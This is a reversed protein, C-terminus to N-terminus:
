ETMASFVCAVNVAPALLRTGCCSYLRVTIESDGGLVTTTMTGQQAAIGQVTVNTTASAEYVLGGGDVVHPIAASLGM